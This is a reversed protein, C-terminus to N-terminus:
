KTAAQELHQWFEAKDGIDEVKIIPLRSGASSVQACGMAIKKTPPHGANDVTNMVQLVLSAPIGGDEILGPQVARLNKIRAAQLEPPVYVPHFGADHVGIDDCGDRMAIGLLDLRQIVPPSEVLDEELTM